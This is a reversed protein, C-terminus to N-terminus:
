NMVYIVRKQVPAWFFYYFFTNFLNTMKLHNNCLLLFKNFVVWYFKLFM